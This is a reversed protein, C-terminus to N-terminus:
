AEHRRRRAYSAGAVAVLLVAALGGVMAPAQPASWGPAHVPAPAEDPSARAIDPLEAIGGVAPGVAPSALEHVFIDRCTGPGHWPNCENRDGAVLNSAESEFAVFRGNSSIAPDRSFGNAQSADSAVSVRSTEGTLRDHLFNDQLGNTDGPVLNTALSDFTILSGDASMGLGDIFSSANGPSGDSAVSVCTTQATQRDHLYVNCGYCNTGLNGQSYFAVYRGDTSIAPEGSTDNAESGDSAVSVRTTQGTQRDHVFVDGYGNYDGPVLNAARSEFAVFRGDPSISPGSHRFYHSSNGNGQSGDAAVNVRTTQATQRDHLFVDEYANTDGPVLNTARSVFAVFRGDGSIAAEFSMDNGQSGDSAVSVLTTDRPSAGSRGYGLLFVLAVVPALLLPRVVNRTRLFRM